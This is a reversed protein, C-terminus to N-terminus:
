QVRVGWIQGSHVPPRVPSVISRAAAESVSQGYCNKITEIAAYEKGENEKHICECFGKPTESFYELFFPKELLLWSQSGDEKSAM